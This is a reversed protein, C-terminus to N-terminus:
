RLLWYSLRGRDFLIEGTLGEEQVRIIKRERGLWGRRVNDVEGKGERTVDSQWKHM